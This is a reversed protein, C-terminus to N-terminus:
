IRSSRQFLASWSTSSHHIIPLTNDPTNTYMVLLAGRIPLLPNFGFPGYPKINEDPNPEARVTPHLRIIMERISPYLPDETSMPKELIFADGGLALMTSFTVNSYNSSFVNGVSQGVPGVILPLVLISPTNSLSAAFGVAASMQSGSGVFDELLVLREYGEHTMFAEVDGATSFQTLTRWDPRLDAGQINNIHHFAAIQMSDTIGCFWTKSLADDIRKNLQPDLLDINLKEILWRTIPGNLAARYLANFEKSGAFFLYPIMRIMTKQDNESARDLWERLRIM